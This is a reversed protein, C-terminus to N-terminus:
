RSAAGPEASAHRRPIVRWAGNPFLWIGTVDDQLGLDPGARDHPICTAQELLVATDGCFDACARSRTDLADDEASPTWPMARPRAAGHTATEVPGGAEWPAPVARAQKRNAAQAPAPRGVRVDALGTILLLMLLLLLVM